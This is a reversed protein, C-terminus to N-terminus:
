LNGSNAKKSPNEGSNKPEIFVKEKVEEDMVNNNYTENIKEGKNITLCGTLALFLLCKIALKIM